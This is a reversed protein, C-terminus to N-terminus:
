MKRAILGYGCRGTWLEKSMGMVVASFTAFTWGSWCGGNRAVYNWFIPNFFIMGVCAWLGPQTLDVLSYGSQYNFSHRHPQPLWSPLQHQLQQQLKEM